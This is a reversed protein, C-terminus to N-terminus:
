ATDICPCHRPISGMSQPARRPLRSPLHISHDPCHDNALACRIENLNISSTLPSPLPTSLDLLIYPYSPISVKGLGMEDALIGNIGQEYLNGLWTLGKVQYEKLQAMLMKPQTITVSDEALTPNQFNLEDGDVVFYSVYDAISESERPAEIHHSVVNRNTTPLKVNSIPNPVPCPHYARDLVPQAGGRADDFARAKDRAAVVAAHAGRAAHRRLNDEDDIAPTLAKGM